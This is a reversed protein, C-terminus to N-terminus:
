RGNKERWEGVATNHNVDAQKIREGIVCVTHCIFAVTIIILLKGLTKLM